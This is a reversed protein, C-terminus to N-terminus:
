KARKATESTAPLDAAKASAGSGSMSEFQEALARVQEPTAKGGTLRSAVKSALKGIVQTRSPKSAAAGKSASAGAAAPAARSASKAALKKAVVSALKVHAM